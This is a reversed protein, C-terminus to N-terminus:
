LDGYRDRDGYRSYDGYYGRNDSVHWCEGYRDCVYRAAAPATSAALSLTAIAALAAFKLKAPPKADFKERDGERAGSAHADM